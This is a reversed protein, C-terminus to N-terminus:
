NALNNRMAWGELGRSTIMQQKLDHAAIALQFDQGRLEQNVEELKKIFIKTARTADHKGDCDIITYKTWDGTFLNLERMRSKKKQGDNWVFRFYHHRLINYSINLIKWELIELSALLRTEGTDQNLMEKAGSKISFELRWTDKDPDFGGKKWREAIWPKWKVEKMEKSKNYLYYSIESLNSGFKLSEFVHVSGVQSGVARFKSCKGFKICTSRVFKHIFNQPKMKNTFEQFDACIDVRSINQFTLENLTMFQKVYTPLDHGYLVWNDFKVLIMLPDLLPSHPKSVVTAVRRENQYLEQVLAFHRTGLPLNKVKFSAHFSGKNYISRKVNIQLWDISLVKVHQTNKLM